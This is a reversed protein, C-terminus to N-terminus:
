AARSRKADELQKYLKKGEDTELFKAEAASKSVINEDKQFKTVATDYQENLSKSVMDAGHGTEKMQLAIAANGAKLLQLVHDKQATPMRNVHKLVHAKEVATLPLNGLDDSAQKELRTLEADDNAKEIAAKNAAIEAQQSKIVAFLGPNDSKRFVQGDVTLTEDGAKAATIEKAREEKTLKVFAQRKDEPLADHYSKEIADLAAPAGTEALKKIQDAQEKNTKQLAELAPAMKAVSERLEKMQAREADTMM